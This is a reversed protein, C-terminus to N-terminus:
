GLACPGPNHESLEPIDGNLSGGCGRQAIQGLVHDSACHLEEEHEPQGKQSDTEM